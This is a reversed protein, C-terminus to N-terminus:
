ETNEHKEPFPRVGRRRPRPDRWAPRADDECVAVFAKPRPDLLRIRRSAMEDALAHDTPDFAMAPDPSQSPMAM